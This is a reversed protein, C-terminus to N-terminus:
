LSDFNFNSDTPNSLRTKNESIAVLCSTSVLMKGGNGCDAEGDRGEEQTKVDNNRVAMELTGIM